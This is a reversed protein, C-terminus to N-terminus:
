NWKYGIKNITELKKPNIGIKKLKKRFRSIVQNIAWDTIDPNNWIIEAIKDKNVIKGKNKEFYDFLIKNKGKLKNQNSTNELSLSEFLKELEKLKKGITVLTQNDM